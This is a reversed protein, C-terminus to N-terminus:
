DKLNFGKITQSGLLSDGHLSKIRRNGSRMSNSAINTNAMKM